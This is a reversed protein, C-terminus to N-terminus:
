SGTSIVGYYVTLSCMNAFFFCFSFLSSFFLFAFGMSDIRDGGLVLERNRALLLRPRMLIRDTWRSVRRTPNQKRRGLVFSVSARRGCIAIVM